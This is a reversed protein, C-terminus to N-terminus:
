DFINEIETKEEFLVKCAFLAFVLAGFEIWYSYSLYNFEPRPM